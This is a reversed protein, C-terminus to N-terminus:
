AGSVVTGSETTKLEEEAERFELRRRASPLLGEPKVIMMIVLGAGYALIRYEDVERLVEPLGILFFAGTIVGPISGVGGIIILCLVNISVFLTFDAPFIAGQRSAFIAGGVGGFAAGISFAMLKAIVLNIGMAQAVDEDERVAVWTRGVRSDNLRLSLFVVVLCAALILYYLYRPDNMIIGFFTPSPTELIGQPGGIYPKLVDSQALIRIIEGFGLTVIALYDGRMRLVPIGLLIGAFAACLLALPLVVWFPWGLHVSSAPSSFFAMAYAGIAYFAVYGLDLLGAMGVVINLGLGMLTFLGITTLTQSWFLGVAFPLAICVGVLVLITVYRSVSFGASSAAAGRQPRAPRIAPWFYTILAVGVLIAAGALSPLVKGAKLGLVNLVLRSVDLGTLVEWFLGILIIAVIGELLARRLRVPLLGYLIAVVSMAVSLGVLAGVGVGIPLGLSLVKIMDPTVNVLVDRMSVNNAVFLLAALAAGTILGATAAAVLKASLRAGTKEVQRAAMFGAMLGFAVLIVMSLTIGSVIYRNAFAQLMGILVIFIATLGIILGSRVGPRLASVLTM